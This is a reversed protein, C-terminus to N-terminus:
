VFNHQAFLLVRYSTWVLVVEVLRITTIGTTATGAFTSKYFAGVPQKWNKIKKFAAISSEDALFM